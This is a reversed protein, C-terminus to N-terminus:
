YVHIIANVHARTRRGVDFGRGAQCYHPTRPSLSPLPLYPASPPELLSSASPSPQFVFITCRRTTHLPLIPMERIVVLMITKQTSM